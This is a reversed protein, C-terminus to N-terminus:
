DFDFMDRVEAPLELPERVYWRGDNQVLVMRQSEEEFQERVAQLLEMFLERMLELQMEIQDETLGLEKLEERQVQMLADVLLDLDFEADWDYTATARDKNEEDMEVEKVEYSKLTLAKMLSEGIGEQEFGERAAPDILSMFRRFNREKAAQLFAEAAERPSDAGPTIEEEEGDADEDADEDPDVEVSGEPQEERDPQLDQASLPFSLIWLLAAALTISVSLRLNMM